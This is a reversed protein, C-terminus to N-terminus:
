HNKKDKNKNKLREEKEKNFAVAKLISTLSYVNSFKALAQNM